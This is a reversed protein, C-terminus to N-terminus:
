KPLEGLARRISRPAPDHLQPDSAIEKKLQGVSVAVSNRAADYRAIARLANAHDSEKLALTEQVKLLAERAVAERDKARGAESREYLGWLGLLAAVVLAGAFLKWALIM